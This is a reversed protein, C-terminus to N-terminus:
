LKMECIRLMEATLMGLDELAEERIRPPTSGQEALVRLTVLQIRLGLIAVAKAWPPALSM